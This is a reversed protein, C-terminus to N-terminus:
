CTHLLGFLNGAIVNHPVKPGSKAFVEGQFYEHKEDSANEMELHEEITWIKRNCALAPEKVDM